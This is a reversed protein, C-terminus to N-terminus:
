FTWSTPTPPKKNTQKNLFLLYLVQFELAQLSTPTSPLTLYFSFLLQIRLKIDNKNNSICTKIM